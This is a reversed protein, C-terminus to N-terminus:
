GEGPGVDQSGSLGNEKPTKRRPLSETPARSGIGMSKVGPAALFYVRSQAATLMTQKCTSLRDKTYDRVSLPKADSNYVGSHATSLLTHGVLTPNTLLASFHASWDDKKRSAESPCSCCSSPLFCLAHSPSLSPLLVLLSDM